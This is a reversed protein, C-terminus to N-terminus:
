LWNNKDHIIRDYSHHVKTQMYSSPRPLSFLSLCNGPCHNIRLARSTRARLRLTQCVRQREEIEGRHDM